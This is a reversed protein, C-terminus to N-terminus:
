LSCRPLFNQKIHLVLDVLFTVATTLTVLSGLFISL